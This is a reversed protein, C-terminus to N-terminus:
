NLLLTIRMNSTKFGKECIRLDLTETVLLIQLEKVFINNFLKNAMDTETFILASNLYYKNLELEIFYTRHQKLNNNWEYWIQCQGSEKYSADSM